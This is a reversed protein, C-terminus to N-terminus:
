CLVMKQWSFLFIVMGFSKCWQFALVSVIKKLWTKVHWYIKIQPSSNKWRLPWWIIAMDQLAEYVLHVVLHDPISYNILLQQHRKSSRKVWFSFLVINKYQLTFYLYPSYLDSLLNCIFVVVLLGCLRMLKKWFCWFTLGAVCAKKNSRRLAKGKLQFIRKFSNIFVM